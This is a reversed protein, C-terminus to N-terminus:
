PEIEPRTPDIETRTSKPDASKQDLLSKKFLFILNLYFINLDLETRYPDNETGNFKLDIIESTLKPLIETRETRTM